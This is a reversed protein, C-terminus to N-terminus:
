VIFDVKGSELHYTGGVIRLQGSQQLPKLVEDGRLRYVMNQTHLRIAAQLPDTNQSKALRVAPLIPELLARVGHPLEELHEAELAAQVAGCREHGMVVVLPVGFRTAAFEISGVIVEDVVCGAVRVVFLDGLGQDFIVEPAVRSDACGLVIALPHQGEAVKLRARTDQRPHKAHHEVYRRNGDQLWHLAQTPTPQDFNSATSPQM